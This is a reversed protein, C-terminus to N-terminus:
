KRFKIIVIYVSGVTCHVYLTSYLITYMKRASFSGKRNVFGMSFLKEGETEEEM